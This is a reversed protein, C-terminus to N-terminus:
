VQRNCTIASIRQWYRILDEQEKKSLGEMGTTSVVGTDIDAAQNHADQLYKQARYFEDMINQNEAMTSMKEPTKGDNSNSAIINSEYNDYKYDTINLCDVGDIGQGEVGRDVQIGLKRQYITLQNKLWDVMREAEAKMNDFKNNMQQVEFDHMDRLDMIETRAVGLQHEMSM